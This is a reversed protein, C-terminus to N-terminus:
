FGVDLEPMIALYLCHREFHNLDFVACVYALPLFLGSEQSNKAKNEMKGMFKFAQGKDGLILRGWNMLDQLHEAPSNYKSLPM